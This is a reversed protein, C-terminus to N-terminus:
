EGTQRCMTILVSDPWEAPWYVLGWVKLVNSKSVLKFGIHITPEMCSTSKSSLRMVDM